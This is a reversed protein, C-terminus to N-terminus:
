KAFIDEVLETLLKKTGTGALSTEVSVVECTFDDLDIVKNNARSKLGKKQNKIKIKEKNKKARYEKKRKNNCPDCYSRYRKKDHIPFDEPNFPKDCDLCQAKHTRGEYVLFSRTKVSCKRKAQVSNNTDIKSEM